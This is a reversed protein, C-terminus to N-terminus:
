ESPLVAWIYTFDNSYLKKFTENNALLYELGKGPKEWVLGQSMDQTIMVYGINHKKLLKKTTILNNSSLLEDNDKFLSEANEAYEYAPDTLVPLEAWYQIFFGKTYHSFVKQGPLSKDKLWLLAEKTQIAPPQESLIVAHSITSFLLGCFLVLLCFNKLIKVKWRMKAFISFAIGAFFSVILAAYIMLTQEFFSWVVIALSAMLLLYYTKKFKWLVAFGISGLLLSFASLGLIGGFDSIFQLLLNPKVLM